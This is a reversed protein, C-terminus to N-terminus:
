DHRVRRDLVGVQLISLGAVFGLFTIAIASATGIDFFRFAEQYLTYLMMDTVGSPGGQTLVAVSEFESFSRVLTIVSVFLTVPGLMPWTVLTFRKWGRDAGDIAAAEYLRRDITALGALFLLINYGLMKWVGIVALTALATDPDSLFRMKAFGFISLVANALGFTPHLVVEWATAMAVMTATIPLFFVAQFVRGFRNRDSLLLALWLAAGISIPAVVGVYVLTNLLSNRISPDAAMTAFNRLGVWDFSSMGFQYDTLSLVLVGASPLFLLTTLCFAAPFALAAGVRRQRATDASM